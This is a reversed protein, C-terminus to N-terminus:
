KAAYLNDIWLTTPLDRSPDAMASLDVIGIGTVLAPDVKDGAGGGGGPGGQEQFSDWPPSLENWGEGADLPTTWVFNLNGPEQVGIALQMARDSQVTVHLASTGTFVGAVVPRLLGFIAAGPLTYAVRYAGPDGQDGNDLSVDVGRGGLVLFRMPLRDCGDLIVAGADPPPTVVEAPPPTASLQVDDLWLTRKGSLQTGFPLGRTMAAIFASADVVGLGSIQDPHLKGDPDLPTHGDNVAVFDGLGVQVQQWTHGPSYFPALYTAGNKEALVVAMNAAVSTKLAFSVSALQPVPQPLPVLVGSPAAGPQPNEPLTYQFQLAGTGAHVNAPDTTQSLTAQQDLTIWGGVGQAFDWQQLPAADDARVPSLVWPLALLLLCTLRRLTTM